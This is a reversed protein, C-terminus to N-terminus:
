ATFPLFLREHSLLDEFIEFDQFTDAIDVVFDGFIIYQDLRQTLTKFTLVANIWM